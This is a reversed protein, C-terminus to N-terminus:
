LSNEISSDNVEHGRPQRASPNGGLQNASHGGQTLKYSMMQSRYTPHQMGKKIKDWIRKYKLSECRTQELQTTLNLIKSMMREREQEFYEMDRQLLDSTSEAPKIQIEAAM